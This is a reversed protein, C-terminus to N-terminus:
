GIGPTEWILLRIIKILSEGKLTYRPMLKKAVPDKRVLVYYQKTTLGDQTQSNYNSVHLNTGGTRYLFEAMHPKSSQGRSMPENKHIVHPFEESPKFEPDEIFMFEGQRHIKRGSKLKRHRKHADSTKLGERREIDQLISPKLAQKAQLVTSAGASEPIACTFWNREDHGCLFLGLADSVDKVGLLLHRDKKQVDMVMMDIEKKVRIDFFEGDSDRRIDITFPPPQQFTRVPEQIKVRAGMQTFKKEILATNM